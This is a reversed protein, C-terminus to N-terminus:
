TSKKEKEKERDFTLHVILFRAQTKKLIIIIEHQRSRAAKLSILTALTSM